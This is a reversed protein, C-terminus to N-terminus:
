YVERDDPLNFAKGLPRIGVMHAVDRGISDKGHEPVDTTRPGITYRRRGKEISMAASLGRTDDLAVFWDIDGEELNIESHGEHRHAALVSRAVAARAEVEKRLGARCDATQAIIEEVKKGNARRYVDAM